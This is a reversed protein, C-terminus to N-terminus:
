EKVGDYIVLKSTYANEPLRRDRSKLYQNSERHTVRGSAGDVYYGTLPLRIKGHVGFCYEGDVIFLREQFFYTGRAKKALRRMIGLAEQSSIKFNAAVEAYDSSDPYYIRHRKNNEARSWGVAGIITLLVFCGAITIVVRRPTLM